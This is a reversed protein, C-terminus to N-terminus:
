KLHERVQMLVEGLWNTGKWQNQDLALPDEKALGIGWIKDLPSAEVLIRDGTDLLLQKLDEDQSFKAQNAEFVIRKCVKNWKDVNFNHVGRGFFKQQEPDKSAMIAHEARVDIFLRAKSAMMYQEACNYDVGGINFNSKHWQSFPGHWFLVMTDTIKMDKQMQEMKYVKAVGKRKVNNQWRLCELQLKDICKMCMAFSSLAEQGHNLTLDLSVLM